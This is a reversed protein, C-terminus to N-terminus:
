SIVFIGESKKQYCMKKLLNCVAILNSKLKKLLNSPYYSQKLIQKFKRDQILNKILILAM